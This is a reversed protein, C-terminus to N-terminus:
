NSKRIGELIDVNIAYGCAEKPIGSFTQYLHDYVGGTVVPESDGAVYGQFVFGTYYELDPILSFDACFEISRTTPMSSLIEQTDALTSRFSEPMGAFSLRSGFEQLESTFGLCLSEVIPLIEKWKTNGGLYKRIEPLNKRYLLFSLIRQEQHSLGAKEILSRFLNVNGLVITVPASIRIDNLLVRIEELMKLVAGKGSGGLNEAGVQNIEKRDGSKRGYDRFTKGIYFIKQNEKRHAFAAMGKVAQVTLDVSPSLERGDSDRFRYLAASDEDSVTHLFSSSYDFSPLFVESYGFKRLGSCLSDLLQRRELSDEPGLFHFGEPIWKKETFEPPNHTM